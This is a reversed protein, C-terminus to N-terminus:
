QQMTNIFKIILRTDDDLELKSYFDVKFKSYKYM